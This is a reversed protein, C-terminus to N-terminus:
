CNNMKIKIIFKAGKDPESDLKIEAGLINCLKKVISLGLGTSHENGTPKASLKAFNSYLKKRDNETFGPGQDEIEFIFSDSTKISRLYINSGKPSFKISNTLLNELVRYLIDFDTKIVEYQLLNENHIIIEKNIALVYNNKELKLFIDNIFFESINLKIIGSEIAKYDILSNILNVMRKSQEKINDVLEDVLDTENKSSNILKTSSLISQIPNRLDHAVISLLNNKEEHLKKLKCNLENVEGLAKSLKLNIEKEKDIECRIKETEFEFDIQEIKLQVNKELHETHSSYLHKYLSNVMELNGLKEYSDIKRKIISFKVQIEGIKDLIDAARDYYELAEEYASDKFKIDGLLRYGLANFEHYNNKESVDIQRLTLKLAEATNGKDFNMMSLFYLANAESFKSVSYGLLKNFYELGEKVNGLLYNCAGIAMLSEQMSEESDIKKAIELSKITYALSRNHLKFRSYLSGFNLYVMHLNVINGSEISANESLHYYKLAEKYNYTRSYNVAMGRLIEAQLYRNKVAYQTNFSDKFYKLSETYNGLILYTIAINLLSKTKFEINFNSESEQLIEQFINLAKEPQTQRIQEAEDILTQLKDM